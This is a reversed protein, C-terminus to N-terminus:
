DYQETEDQHSRADYPPSHGAHLLHPRDTLQLLSPIRQLCFADPEVARDAVRRTEGADDRDGFLAEVHVDCRGLLLYKERTGCGPDAMIRELRMPSESRVSMSNAAAM